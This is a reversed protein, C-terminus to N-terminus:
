VTFFYASGLIGQKWTDACYLGYELTITNLSATQNVRVPEQACAITMNACNSRPGNPNAPDVCLFVPAKFLFPLLIFLMGVAAYQISFLFRMRAMYPDDKSNGARAIHKKIEESVM